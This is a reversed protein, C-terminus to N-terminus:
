TFPETVWSMSATSKAFEVSEGRAHSIAPTAKAAQKMAQPTCNVKPTNKL